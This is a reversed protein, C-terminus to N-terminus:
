YTRLYFSITLNGLKVAGHAKDPPVQKQISAMVKVQDSKDWEIEYMEQANNVQGRYFDNICRIWLPLNEKSTMFATTKNGNNYIKFNIEEFLAQRSKKGDPM